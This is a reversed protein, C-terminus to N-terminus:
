PVDLEDYSVARRRRWDEVVVIVALILLVLPRPRQEEIRRRRPQVRRRPEGARDVKAGHRGGELAIVALFVLGGEGLEDLAHVVGIEPGAGRVVGEAGVGLERRLFLLRSFFLLPPRPRHEQRRVDVPHAADRPLPDAEVRVFVGIEGAHVQRGRVHGLGLALGVVVVVREEVGVLEDDEVPVEEGSGPPEDRDAAGVVSTGFAGAAVADVADASGALGEEAPGEGGRAEGM